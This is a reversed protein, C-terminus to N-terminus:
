LYKSIRKCQAINCLQSGTRLQLRAASAGKGFVIRKLVAADSSAASLTILNGGSLMHM